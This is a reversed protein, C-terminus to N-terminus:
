DVPHWSTSGGLWIGNEGNQSPQYSLDYAVSVARTTEGNSLTVTVTYNNWPPLIARGTCVGGTPVTDYVKPEEGTAAFTIQYTFDPSIVSPTFQYTVGDTEPSFSLGTITLSEPLAAPADFLTPQPVTSRGLFYGSTFMGILLTLVLIIAAPSIRRKPVAAPAVAPFEEQLGCLTDLSIDLTKSLVILKNLDPSAEGTEWKSVAQRSVGLREALEEQSLGLSKRKQLLSENFAM